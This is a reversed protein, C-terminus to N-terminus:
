SRKAGSGWVECSGDERLRMSVDRDRSSFVIGDEDIVTSGSASRITITNADTDLAIKGDALEIIM